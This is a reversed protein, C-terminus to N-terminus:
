GPTPGAFRARPGQHVVITRPRSGDPDHRRRRKLIVRLVAWPAIQLLLVQWLGALPSIRHSRYLAMLEDNLEHRDGKHERRLREIEPKLERLALVSQPTPLFSLPVPLLSATVWRFTADRWTPPGGTRPDIVKLGLARQGFTQGRTATLGIDYMAAVGTIAVDWRRLSRGTTRRTAVIMAVFPLSDVAGAAIQRGRSAAM